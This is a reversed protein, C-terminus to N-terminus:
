VAHMQAKTNTCFIFATIESKGMVVSVVVGDRHGDGDSHGHLCSPVLVVVMTMTMTRTM